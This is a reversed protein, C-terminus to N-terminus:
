AAERPRGFIIPDFEESDDLRVGTRVGEEIERVPAPTLIRDLQAIARDLDAIQARASDAALAHGQWAGKQDVKCAAAIMTALSPPVDGTIPRIAVSLRGIRQHEAEAIAQAETLKAEHTALNAEAIKRQEALSDRWDAVTQFADNDM